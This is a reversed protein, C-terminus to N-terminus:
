SRLYVSSTNKLLNYLGYIECCLVAFSLIFSLIIATINGIYPVVPIGFLKGFLTPFYFYSVIGLLGSVPIFIFKAIILYKAFINKKRSILFVLILEIIM